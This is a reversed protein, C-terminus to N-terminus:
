CGQVASGTNELLRRFRQELRDNLAELDYNEEIFRRAAKGMSARLRSDEALVALRDALADDDREEVLYGTVGDQVVEPIGSHRTSIVPLGTAMAETITSPIGEQDGNSATVSPALMIHAGRITEALREQSQYGAFKVREAIGLDRSLLELENRLPGDGVLTFEWPLEPRSQSLHAVARIGYEFGKKEVMRGVTVLRTIGGDPVGRQTFAFKSLDIGARHVALRGPDCGLEVLRVRWRESITHFEDGERFLEDYMDWGFTDLWASIDAGHFTTVLRGSIAGIRRLWMAKVGNTGFHCHIVDYDNKQGRGLCPVVEFLLRMSAARKGYRLVNLARMPMFGNQAARTLLFGAAQALRKAKSDPMVPGYIIRDALRYKLVDPHVTGPQSLPEAFIDVDHGRDLMGTVQNLIFTTSLTPFEGVVFAIRM